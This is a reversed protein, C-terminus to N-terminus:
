NRLVMAKTMANFKADRCGGKARATENRLLSTLLRREPV